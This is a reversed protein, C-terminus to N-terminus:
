DNNKENLHQQIQHKQKKYEMLSAYLTPNIPAKGKLYNKMEDTITDSDWNLHQITFPILPYYSLFDKFRHYEEVTHMNIHHPTIYAKLRVSAKGMHTHKSVRTGLDAIEKLGMSRVITTSKNINDTYNYVDADYAHEYLFAATADRRFVRSDSKVYDKVFMSNYCVGKIVKEKDRAIKLVTIRKNKTKVALKKIDKLLEDHEQYGYVVLFSKTEEKLYRIRPEHAKFQAEDDYIDYDCLRLYVYEDPDFHESNPDIKNKRKKLQKFPEVFTEPVSIDEYSDFQDFIFTDFEEIFDDLQDEHDTNNIDLDFLDFLDQESMRESKAKKRLLFFNNMGLEHYMYKNQRVSYSGEITQIDKVWKLQTGTLEYLSDRGFKKGNVLGSEVYKHIKFRLAFMNKFSPIKNLLPYKKHKVTYEMLDKTQPIVVGTAIAASGSKLAIRTKYYEELDKFDKSNYNEALEKIEDIAALYKQQIAEIAEDTYEINERNWVIPLEGIQFKLAIPTKIYSDWNYFDKGVRGKCSIKAAKTNLPYYVNGLCIHINTIGLDEADPRFLFNKGEYITYNNDIGVNDYIINNFYALQTKIASKFKVLEVGSNNKATITIKTGNGQDTPYSDMLDIRPITSGKHLVYVYETGDYRTTVTFMDAYAFPSKSGLGFCGHQENGDRKTSALFRSYVTKIREPSLGVGYDEVEFANEIGTISSAEIIRVTINKDVGAEIHSDLANTTLERVISSVPDSYQSLINYLLAGQSADITYDIGETTTSEVTDNRQLTALKM